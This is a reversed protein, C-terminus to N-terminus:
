LQVTSLRMLIDTNHGEIRKRFEEIEGKRLRLKTVLAPKRWIDRIEQNWLSIEVMGKVLDKLATLTVQTEKLCTDVNKWAQQGSGVQARVTSRYKKWVSSIGSFTVSARDVERRLDQISKNVSACEDVFSYIETILQSAHANM